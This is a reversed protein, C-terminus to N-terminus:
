KGLHEFKLSATSGDDLVVHAVGYKVIQVTGNTKLSDVRLRRGEYALTLENDRQEEAALEAAAKRQEYSSKKKPKKPMASKGMTPPTAVPPGPLPTNM